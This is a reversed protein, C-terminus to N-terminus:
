ENVSAKDKLNMEKMEIAELKIVTIGDRGPGPDISMLATASGFHNPGVLLHGVEHGIAWATVNEFEAASYHTGGHLGVAEEAM